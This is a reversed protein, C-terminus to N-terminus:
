GLFMGMEYQCLYQELGLIKLFSTTVKSDQDVNIVRLAPSFKCLEGFLMRGYGKRRFAKDVGFQPVYGNALNMVAYGLINSLAHVEFVTYHEGAIRIATIENDWSPTFDHFTKYLDWAPEKAQRVSVEDKSLVQLSPTGRFCPLNKTIQFGVKEYARIAPTNETIVELSCYEVGASKLEPTMEVYMQKVLGQGRAAPVVGTGVNHATLRGNREDVGHIVFAIPRGKDFVGCSLDYRVRSAKWRNRLYNETAHIEVFYNAFAENFCRTLEQMDVGVLNRIEM